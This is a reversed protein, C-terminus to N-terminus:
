SVAQSSIWHCRNAAGELDAGGIWSEILDALEDVVTPENPAFLIGPFDRGAHVFAAALDSFDGYNRTLLLCEDEIACELLTKAGATAFEEEAAHISRIGRAALSEILDIPLTRDIM